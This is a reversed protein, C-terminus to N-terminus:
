IWQIVSNGCGTFYASQHHHNDLHCTLPNAWSCELFPGVPPFAHPQRNFTVPASFPFASFSQPKLVEAVQYCTLCLHRPVYLFELHTRFRWNPRSCSQRQSLWPSCLFRDTPFLVVGPNAFNSSPASGLHLQWLIDSSLLSIPVTFLLM